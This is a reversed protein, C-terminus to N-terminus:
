PARRVPLVKTGARGFEFRLLWVSSIEQGDAKAPVFKWRRAAELAPQAFYQSPGRSDLKAEAVNGSPAVRVRV